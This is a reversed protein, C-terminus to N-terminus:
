DKKRRFRQFQQKLKLIFPFNLKNQGGGILQQIAQKMQHAKTFKKAIM